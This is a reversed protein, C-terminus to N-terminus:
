SLTVDDYKTYTPDGTYNDDKGTLTLTYSHGATITASRGPRVADPEVRRGDCPWPPSRRWAGDCALCSVRPPM